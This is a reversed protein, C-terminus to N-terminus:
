KFLDCSMLFTWYSFVYITEEIVVYYIPTFYSWIDKFGFRKRYSKFKILKFMSTIFM